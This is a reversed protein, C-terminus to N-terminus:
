TIVEIGSLKLKIMCYNIKVGPIFLLQKTDILVVSSKSLEKILDIFLDSYLDYRDFLNVKSKKMVEIDSDIFRNVDDYSIAYVPEGVRNYEKIKKCLFTKGAGSDPIFFYVGNDLNISISTQFTNNIYGM